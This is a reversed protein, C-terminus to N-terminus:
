VGDEYHDSTTIWRGCPSFAVNYVGRADGSFVFHEQGTELSWVRVTQGKAIAIRLGDTSYAVNRGQVSGPPLVLSSKDSVVDYHRISEDNSGYILCKDNPTYAVCTVSGTSGYYNSNSGTIISNVEWLRVTMDLGCSALQAGDSSFAIDVILAMHGTLASM